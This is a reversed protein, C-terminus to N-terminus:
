AIRVPDFLIEEAVSDGELLDSVPSADSVDRNGADQAAPPPGDVNLARRHLQDGLSALARGQRRRRLGLCRRRWSWWYRRSGRLAEEATGALGRTRRFERALGGARQSPPTPTPPPITLLWGDATPTPFVTVDGVASIRWPSPRRTGSPAVTSIRASPVGCPIM